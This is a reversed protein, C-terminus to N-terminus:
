AVNAADRKLIQTLKDAAANLLADLEEMAGIAEARDALADLKAGFAKRDTESGDALQRLEQAIAETENVKQEKPDNAKGAAQNSEDLKRLGFGDTRLDAARKIEGSMLKLMEDKSNGSVGFGAYLLAAFVDKKNMGGLIKMAGAIDGARLSNAFATNKDVAGSTSSAAAAAFVKEISSAAGDADFAPLDYTSVDGNSGTFQYTPRVQGSAGIYAVAKGDSAMEIRAVVAGDRKITGVGWGGDKAWTVSAGNANVAKDVAVATAFPSYAQDVSYADGHISAEAEKALWSKFEDTGDLQYVSDTRKEIPIEQMAEIASAASNQQAAKAKEKQADRLDMDFEVSYYFNTDFYDSQSDSNDYRYSNGIATLANQLAMADASLRYDKDGYNNGAPESQYMPFNEPLEKISVRISQGMSYKSTKVSIFSPKFGPPLIAKIDQRIRKAIDAADHKNVGDTELKSGFAPLTVHDFATGFQALWATIEGVVDDFKGELIGVPVPFTFDKSEMAQAPFGPQSDPSFSARVKASGAEVSEVHVSASGAMMAMTAVSSYQGLEFDSQNVPFDYPTFGAMALEEALAAAYRTRPDAYPTTAFAETSSPKDPNQEGVGAAVGTLERVKGAIVDILAQIDQSGDDDFYGKVGTGDNVSFLSKATPEIGLSNQVGVDGRGHHVKVGNLALADGDRVMGLKQLAGKIQEARQNLLEQKDAESQSNGGAAVGAGRLREARAREAALREAVKANRSQVSHLQDELSVIEDSLEASKAQLEERKAQAAELEASRADRAAAQGQFKASNAEILQAMRRAMLDLTIDRGREPAVSATIDRKNLMWRYAVLTEDPQFKKPDSDPSHFLVSVAQGDSINFTVVKYAFLANKRDPGIYPEGEVTLGAGLYRGLVRALAAMTKPLRTYIATVAELVMHNQGNMIADAERGTCSELLLAADGPDAALSYMVAKLENKTWGESLEIGNNVRYGHIAPYLANM